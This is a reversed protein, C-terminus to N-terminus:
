KYKCNGYKTNMDAQLIIIDTKVEYLANNTYVPVFFKERPRFTTWTFIESYTMPIWFAKWGM